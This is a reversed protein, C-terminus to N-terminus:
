LLMLTYVNVKQCCSIGINTSKKIHNCCLLRLQESDISTHCGRFSNPIFVPPFLFTAFIVARCIQRESYVDKLLAIIFPDGISFMFVCIDLKMKAHFFNLSVMSFKEVKTFFIM